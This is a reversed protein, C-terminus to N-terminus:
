VISFDTLRHYLPTQYTASTATHVHFLYIPQDFFHYSKINLALYCLVVRDEAIFVDGPVNSDKYLSTKLIKNHLTNRYGSIFLSAIFSEATKCDGKVEEPIEVGGDNIEIGEVLDFDNLTLFNILQDVNESVITDDHDIFMFYKSKTKSILELRKKPMRHDSTPFVDFSPFFTQYPRLLELTNDTSDDSILVAYNRSKLAAISDLCACITRHSNHTPILFTLIPAQNNLNMFLFMKRPQDGL